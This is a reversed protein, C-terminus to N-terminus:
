STAASPQATPDPAVAAVPTPAPASDPGVLTVTSDLVSTVDIPELTKSGDIASTPFSQINQLLCALAAAAAVGLDAQWAVHIVSTPAVASFGLLGALTQAFTKISRIGTDISWTKVTNM